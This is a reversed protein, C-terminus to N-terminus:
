QWGAKPSRTVQLPGRLTPYIDLLSVPSQIISGETQGPLRFALPVRTSEEWLAQKRWHKKEGLHQGHDSWLVVLTNDAYPSNELATLVKGLEHDVFSLCALYGYVLEKWYTSSLDVVAKHDGMKLTGYAIAKGMLPIDAMENEPVSPLRSKKSNTSSSFNELLQTPPRAPSPLRRRSFLPEEQEQSLQDVPGSPFSNTLCKEMRCIRGISPVMAFHIVM